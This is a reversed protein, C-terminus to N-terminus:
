CHCTHACRDGHFALLAADVLGDGYQHEVVVARLLLEYALSHRDQGDYGQGKQLMFAINHMAMPSGQEAVLAM